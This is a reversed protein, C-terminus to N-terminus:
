PKKIAGDLIQIVRDPTDFCYWTDNYVKYQRGNYEKVQIDMVTGKEGTREKDIYYELGFRYLRSKGGECIM